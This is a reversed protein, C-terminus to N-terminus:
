LPRKTFKDGFKFKIVKQAQEEMQVNEVNGAAPDNFENTIEETMDEMESDSNSEMNSKPSEHATSASDM